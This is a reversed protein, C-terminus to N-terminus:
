FHHGLFLIRVHQLVEIDTFDNIKDTLFFKLQAGESRGIWNHQMLRVREPWDSLTKIAELLEEAYRAINLFWQSLKRREVPVGSRWGCGDVVQENALVTNEIPDWNVWSEKRYALGKELFKIFILQEHKFYKPDCTAIERKWDYLTRYIEITRENFNYKTPDMRCPPNKKMAANEAPLGFADWGMPHLVNFGEARRFRAVVDGTYNRVHGMHIQGSPYPFMELVYYKPKESFEDVSFCNSNEWAVQWKKEIQSPIFNTM